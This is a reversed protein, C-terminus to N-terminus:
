IRSDRDALRNSHVRLMASARSQHLEFEGRGPGSWEGVGSDPASAFYVDWAGLVEREARGMLPSGGVYLKDRRGKVIQLGALAASALLLRIVPHADIDANVGSFYADFFASFRRRATWGTGHAKTLEGARYVVGNRVADYVEKARAWNLTPWGEAGRSANGRWLSPSTSLTELVATLLTPPLLELTSLHYSILAPTTAALQTSPPSLLDQILLTADPIGSM